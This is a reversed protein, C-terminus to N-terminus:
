HDQEQYKKKDHKQKANTAYYSTDANKSSTSTSPHLVLHLANTMQQITQIILPHINNQINRTTITTTIQTTNNNKPILETTTKLKNPITITQTTLTIPYDTKVDVWLDDISDVATPLLSGAIVVAILIAILLGVGAAKENKVFKRKMVYRGGPSLWGTIVSRIDDCFRLLECM